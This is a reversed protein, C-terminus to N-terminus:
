SGGHDEVEFTDNFYDDTTLHGHENSSYGGTHVICDRYVYPTTPYSCGTEGWYANLMGQRNTDGSVGNQSYRMDTINIDDYTTGVQAGLRSGTDITEAGWWALDYGQWDVTSLAWNVGGTSLRTIRFRAKYKAPVDDYQYKYVEFKYREGIEPTMSGPWAVAGGFGGPTYWFRYADINSRQGYGLQMLEANSNDELNAPLIYSGRGASATGSCPDLDAILATAEVNDFAASPNATDEMFKVIITKANENNPSGCPDAALIADPRIVAVAATGLLSALLALTIIIAQSVRNLRSLSTM